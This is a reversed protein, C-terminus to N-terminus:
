ICLLNNNMYNQYHSHPKAQNNVTRMKSLRCFCQANQIYPGLGPLSTRPLAQHCIVCLPFMLHLSPLLSTLLLDAQHVVHPAVFSQHSLPRFLSPFIRLCCFVCRSLQKENLSIQNPCPFNVCTCLKYFYVFSCWSVNQATNLTLSKLRLDFTVFINVCPCNHM